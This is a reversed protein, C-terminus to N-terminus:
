FNYNNKYELLSGYLVMIQKLRQSNEENHIVELDCTIKKIDKEICRTMTNIFNKLLEKNENFKEINTNLIFKNLTSIVQQNPDESEAVQLGEKEFYEKMKDIVLKDEDSLQYLNEQEEECSLEAQKDCDREIDETEFLILKQIRELIEEDTPTINVWKNDIFANAEWPPNDIYYESYYQQWFDKIGELNNIADSDSREFIFDAVKNIFYDPIESKYCTGFQQVVSPRKYDPCAESIIFPIKDTM